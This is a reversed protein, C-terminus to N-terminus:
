GEDGGEGEGGGGRTTRESASITSSRQLATGSDRPDDAYQYGATIRVTNGPTYDRNPLLTATGSAATVIGNTQSPHFQSTPWIGSATYFTNVYAATRGDRWTGSPSGGWNVIVAGSEEEVTLSSLPAYNSCDRTGTVTITQSETSIETDELATCTAPNGLELTRTRTRERRRTQTVDREVGECLTSAAPPAPSWSGYQYAGYAGYASYSCSTAYRDIVPNSWATARIFTGGQSTVTRQSRFVNNSGNPSLRTESWGSPIAETTGSPRSPPTNSGVRRYITQQTQIEPEVVRVRFTDTDSVSDSTEDRANRGFGNVTRTVAVRATTNRTVDPARFLGDQNITGINTSYVVSENDFNGGSVSHNFDYTEGENIRSIKNTISISGADAVPPEAAPVVSSVASYVSENPAVVGAAPLARVRVYIREGNTLGTITITQSTSIRDDDDADSDDGWSFEYRSAGTVAGATAQIQQNGRTLSLTPTVLRAATLLTVSSWTNSQFGAPPSDGSFRQTLTVRWVSQIGSVGPNTLSWGSGPNTYAGVVSSTPAAPRNLSRRYFTRTRTTAASAGYFDSLSIRGSSPIGTTGSAVYDGGAYFDTLAYDKTATYASDFEEAIDRLSIAGSSPLPM